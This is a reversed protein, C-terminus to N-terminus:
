GTEPGGIAWQLTPNGAFAPVGRHMRLLPRQRAFGLERAFTTAATNDDPIDWFVPEGPISALASRILRRGCEASGAVTPGLYHARSGPRLLAYGGQTLFIRSDRSLRRLFASRDAGFAERDLLYPLDNGHLTPEGTAAVSRGEWRALGSDVVFGLKEYVRRGDPTADLKLCRVRTDLYDICTGLLRTAVGRRRFDPHVLVMGIWGVERGYATTTATGAAAGDVSALFCGGPEHDLLREWDRITQNWGALERVEQAFDLDGLTLPRIEISPDDSM